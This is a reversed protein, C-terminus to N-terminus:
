WWMCHCGSCSRPWLFSMRWYLCVWCHSSLRGPCPVDVAEFVISQGRLDGSPSWVFRFSTLPSLDLTPSVVQASIPPVRDPLPCRWVPYNYTVRWARLLCHRIPGALINYRNRFQLSSIHPRLLNDFSARPVPCQPQGIIIIITTVKAFIMESKHWTPGLAIFEACKMVTAYWVIQVPSVHWFNLSSPYVGYVCISKLIFDIYYLLQMNNCLRHSHNYLLM